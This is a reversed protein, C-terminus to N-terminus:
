RTLSAIDYLTDTAPLRSKPGNATRGIARSFAVQGQSGVLVVAGPTEGARIADEVVRPIASLPGPQLAQASAPWPTWLVVAVGLGVMM